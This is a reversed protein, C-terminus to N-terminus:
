IDTPTYVTIGAKAFDQDHSAICTIGYEAMFVTILADGCLLGQGTAHAPVRDVAALDLDIWEIPLGRVVAINARWKTLAKIKAPSGKLQTANSCAEACMLKHMTDHLVKVDSYGHVDTWCRGILALCEASRGVLASIFINADIYVDAGPPLNPLPITPV